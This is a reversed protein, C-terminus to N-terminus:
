FEMRSSLMRPVLPLAARLDGVASRHAIILDFCAPSQPEAAAILDATFKRRLRWLPRGIAFIDRNLSGIAAVFRECAEHSCERLLAPDFEVFCVTREPLSALLKQAGALVDWEFGQVDMKLVRLKALSFSPQTALYEDLAVVAVENASLGSSASSNSFNRVRIDGQNDGTRRIEAKGDARGLAARVAIAGTAGSERINASLISFNRADPEFAFVRGSAGVCRAAAMTYWGINAGIDLVQDGPSLLALMLRTEFGEWVGRRRIKESIYVDRDDHVYFPFRELGPPRAEVRQM